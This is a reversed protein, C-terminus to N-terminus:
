ERPLLEGSNDKLSQEQIHRLYRRFIQSLINNAQQMEQSSMQADLLDSADFAADSGNIASMKLIVFAQPRNITVGEGRAFMLGLQYQADAHGQLSAQEYWHLAQNYDQKTLAGNHWYNGLQYQAEAHGLEAQRMCLQLNEKLAPGEQLPQCLRPTSDILLPSEEAPASVPSLALLLSFLTLYAAKM